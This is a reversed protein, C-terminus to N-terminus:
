WYTYEVEVVPQWNGGIIELTAKKTIQGEANTEYEVKYVKSSFNSKYASLLHTSQFEPDLDFFNTEADFLTKLPNPESTYQYEIEDFVGLELNNKISKLNEGQWKLEATGIALSNGGFERMKKVEKLKANSLYELLLDNKQDEQTNIEEVASLLAGSYSYNKIVMDKNGERFSLTDTFILGDENTYFMYQSLTDGSEKTGTYGYMKGSFTDYAYTIDYNQSPENLFRVKKSKLKGTLIQDDFSRIGLDIVEKNCQTFGLALFLISLINM